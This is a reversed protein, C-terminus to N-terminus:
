GPLGLAEMAEEKIFYHQAKALAVLAVAAALEKAQGAVAVMIAKRHAILELIELAALGMAAVLGLAAAAAAEEM